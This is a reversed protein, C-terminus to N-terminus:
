EFQSSSQATGDMMHDMMDGYRGDVIANGCLYLAIKM